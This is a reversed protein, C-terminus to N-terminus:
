DLCCIELRKLLARKKDQHQGMCQLVENLFRVTEELHTGRNLMVCEARSSMAADTVEARSPIGSENLSELVQTAWIVPVLAAECLWLIEEQAEALAAFGLEVAMDGRAVMVGVRASRMATLLLRPLQRYARPTEIKLVIGLDPASRRALEHQLNAVDSPERVFSFGVADAHQVVFDLTRLDAATLADLRLDTDPFNLTKGARIKLQPKKAFTVELVCREPSAERVVAVLKADDYFVRHGPKLDALAQPLTLGLRVAAQATKSRAAQADPGALLLLRDGESAHGLKADDEADGSEALSQTRPNPGALDCLIRCDRKTKERAAHVREILKSWDKVDGKAYNIRAINMGAVLLATLLAEEADDPLTVMIRTAREKPAEGLLQAANRTLGAEVSEFDIVSRPTDDVGLLRSLAYDVADLTPLVCKEMRGLSSLGLAALDRQIDRLDHQRIAVYHALNEGAKRSNSHALELESSLRQQQEIAARRLEALRARLDQLSPM